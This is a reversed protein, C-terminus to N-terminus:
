GNNARLLSSQAMIKEVSGPMELVEEIAEQTWVNSLMHIFEAVVSRLYSHRHIWVCSILPEFLHDAEIMRLGRDKAANYAMTPLTAIGLGAEVYAKIVDADTASLVINPELGKRHFGDLVSSGGAFASDLTVMPYQALDEFTISKKRLLPHKLPTIVGRTMRYFPLAVIDEPPVALSTGVGIDVAGASVLQAIGAPDAQTIRFNVSPYRERFTQVIPLLLYRGHAHTTAVQLSGADGHAYENGVRKINVADQLMRRAIEVVKEGQETIAVIRNSRRVLIEIGLSEELLRVQKSVGPQSTHLAKAALSVNLQQDVIECLYHLQRLNM